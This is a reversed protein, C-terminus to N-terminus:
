GQAQLAQLVLKAVLASSQPNQGTILQGDRVAFAQWDAVGEFLGGLERLRSELAFPVVGQLGAAAEESDTFSNVRLGRV